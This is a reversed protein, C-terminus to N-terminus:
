VGRFRSQIKIQRARHELLAAYKIVWRNLTSHDVHIGREAFIEEIDRYSLTYSIYYRVVQLIIYSPFHRGSFNITMISFIILTSSIM